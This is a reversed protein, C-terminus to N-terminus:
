SSVPQGTWLCSRVRETAELATLLLDRAKAFQGLCALLPIFPSFVGRLVGTAICGNAIEAQLLLTTDHDVGLRAQAIPLAPELCGAILRTEGLLRHARGLNILVTVLLSEQGQVHVRVAM